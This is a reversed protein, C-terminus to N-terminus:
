KVDIELGYDVDRNIPGPLDVHFTLHGYVLSYISNPRNVNQTQAMFPPGICNRGCETPRANDAWAVVGDRSNIKAKISSPCDRDYDFTAENPIPMNADKLYVPNAGHKICVGYDLSGLKEQASVQFKSPM